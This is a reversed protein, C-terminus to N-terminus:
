GETGTAAHPQQAARRARAEAVSLRMAEAMPEEGTGDLLWAFTCGLVASLAAITSASPRPRNENELRTVAASSLGALASLESASLGVTRRGHALRESLTSM